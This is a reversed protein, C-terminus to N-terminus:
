AMKRSVLIGEVVVQSYRGVYIREMKKTSARLSLYAYLVNEPSVEIIKYTKTPYHRVLGGTDQKFAFCVIKDHLRWALVVAEITTM